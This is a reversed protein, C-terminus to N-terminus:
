GGEGEVAAAFAMKLAVLAALAEDIEAAMGANEPATVKGDRLVAPAREFVDGLEKGTKGLAEWVPGGGSGSPMAILLHGAARALHTTVIPQEAFAELAVAQQLTLMYEFTDPNLSVCRSVHQRSVGLAAAASEHGGCAVVLRRCAARLAIYDAHPLALNM